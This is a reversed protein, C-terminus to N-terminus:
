LAQVTDVIQDIKLTGNAIIEGNVTVVPIQVTGNGIEELVKPFKSIMPSFIDVFKMSEVKPILGARKLGVKVDQIDDLITRTPGCDSGPGCGCGGAPRTGFFYIEAKQM